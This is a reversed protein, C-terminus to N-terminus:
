DQFLQLLGKVAPMEATCDQVQAAASARRHFEEDTKQKFVPIGDHALHQKQPPALILDLARLLGETGGGSGQALELLIGLFGSM